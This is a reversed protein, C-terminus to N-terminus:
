RKIKGQQLIEPAPTTDSATAPADKPVIGDPEVPPHPLRSVRAAVVPDDSARVPVVFARVQCRPCGAAPLPGRFVEQCSVCYLPEEPTALLREFDANRQRAQRVTREQTLVARFFWGWIVLAIISVLLIGPLIFVM